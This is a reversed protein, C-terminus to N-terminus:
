PEIELQVQTIRSQGFNEGDEITEPLPQRLTEPLLLALLGASVALAGILVFPLPQWFANLLVIQPALLGGIRACTSAMGVGANRIVTPFVEASYVYIIAFAASVAFKGLSALTIKLWFIDVFAAAICGVGGTVMSAVHIRVRGFRNLTVCCMAYAPFEVLGSIITNVYVSGGLDEANLSLGYYCLSVVFWSFFVNLTRKRMNPTRLLDLITGRQKKEQPKHVEKAKVKKDPIDMEFPEETISFNEPLERGNLKALRKCIESAEEYRGQSLLWRPSEPYFWYYLVFILPQLAVVIQLTVHNRIFYALCAILIFGAAFFGQVFIGPQMRYKPGIIEMSIVFATTFTGATCAGVLFRCAIHIGLVPILAALLGFVAQGVATIAVTKIRGIRDSVLGSLTCGLLFGSMYISTIMKVAFSRKCVLNFQSGVTSYISTRDYEWEQCDLLM